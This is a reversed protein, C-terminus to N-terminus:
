KRRPLTARTYQLVVVFKSIAGGIDFFRLLTHVLLLTTILSFCRLKTPLTRINCRNSILYVLKDRM